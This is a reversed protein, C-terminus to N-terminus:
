KGSDYLLYIYIYIYIYIYKYTHIYIYIYLFWLVSGWAPLGAVDARLNEGLTRPATRPSTKAKTASHICKVSTPVINGVRFIFTYM